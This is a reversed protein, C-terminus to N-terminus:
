SSPTSTPGRCRSEATKVSSARTMQDCCWRSQFRGASPCHLVAWLDAVVRAGADLSVVDGPVLHKAPAQTWQGDRRVTAPEPVLQTLAQIAKGARYEQAFGIVANLVVVGLVVSGDPIEGLAFAVAASILLGYILPSTFQRILVAWASPGQQRTLENPGHEALRRQAEATGLGRPHSSLQGLVDDGSIAHWDARSTNRDSAATSSNQGRGLETM